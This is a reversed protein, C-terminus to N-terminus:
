WINGDFEASLLLKGRTHRQRSGTNLSAPKCVCLGELRDTLQFSLHSPGSFFTSKKLNSWWFPPDPSRYKKEWTTHPSTTATTLGFKGGIQEDSGRKMLQNLRSWAGSALITITQHYQLAGQHPLTTHNPITHQGPGIFPLGATCQAAYYQSFRVSFQLNQLVM